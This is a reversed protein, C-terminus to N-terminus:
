NLWSKIRDSIYEFSNIDKLEKPEINKSYVLIPVQERTHDTGHHVPDNGHDAVVIVLDDDHMKDIYKM